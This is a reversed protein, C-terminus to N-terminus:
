RYCWNPMQHANSFRTRPPPEGDGNTPAATMKIARSLLQRPEHRGDIMPMLRGYPCSCAHARARRRRGRRLNCMPHSRAHLRGHGAHRIGIGQDAGALADSSVCRQRRGDRNALSHGAMASIGGLEGGPEFLGHGNVFSVIVKEARQLFEMALSAARVAEASENGAIAARKGFTESAASSSILGPRDTERLVVKPILSTGGDPELPFCATVILDALRGRVSLLGDTEGMEKLVNVSFGAKPDPRRIHATTFREAVSQFLVRMRDRREVSEKAIMDILVDLSSGPIWPSLRFETQTLSAEIRYVELHADPRRGLVFATELVPRELSEPNALDYQGSLPALFRRIPM